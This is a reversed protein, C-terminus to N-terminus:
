QSLQYIGHFNFFPISKECEQILCRGVLKEKSAFEYALELTDFGGKVSEDVIVLFKDPFRKYLDKQNKEYRVYNQNLMRKTTMAVRMRFLDIVACLIDFKDFFDVHIHGLKAANSKIKELINFAVCQLEITAKQEKSTNSKKKGPSSSWQHETKGAASASIEKKTM